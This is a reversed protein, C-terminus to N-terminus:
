CFYDLHDVRPAFHLVHQGFEMTPRWIDSPSWWSGSWLWAFTSSAEPLVHCRSTNSSHCQAARQPGWVVPRPRICWYLTQAENLFITCTVCVTWIKSSSFYGQRGEFMDQLIYVLKTVCEPIFCKTINNQEASSWCALIINSSIAPFESSHVTLPSRPKSSVHIRWNCSLEQLFETCLRFLM